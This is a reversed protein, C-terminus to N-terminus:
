ILDRRKLAQSQRLNPEVSWLRRLQPHFARRIAHSEHPKGKNGASPLEGQYLLRFEMLDCEEIPEGTGVIVRTCPFRVEDSVCPM